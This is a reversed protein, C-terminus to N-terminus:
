PTALRELQTVLSARPEPDDREVKLARAARARDRNVWALVQGVTGEPVPEEDEDEDEDEGEGTEEGEAAAEGAAEEEGAPAPVPPPEHVPFFTDAPFNAHFAVLEDTVHYSVGDTTRVLDGGDAEDVREVETEPIGLRAAAQEHSMPM